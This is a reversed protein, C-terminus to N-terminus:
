TGGTWPALTRTSLPITEIINSVADDDGADGPMNATVTFAYPTGNELGTWDYPATVGSKGIGHKTEFLDYSEAGPM